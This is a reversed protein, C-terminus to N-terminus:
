ERVDEVTLASGEHVRVFAGVENLASDGGVVKAVGVEIVGPLDAIAGEVENPYVNDGSLLVITESDRGDVFLCGDKDMRGLDGMILWGEATFKTATAEHNKYYGAFTTKGM